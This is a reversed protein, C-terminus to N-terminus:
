GDCRHARLLARAALARAGNPNTLESAKQFPSISSRDHFQLRASDLKQLQVVSIQNPWIESDEGVSAPSLAGIGRILVQYDITGLV